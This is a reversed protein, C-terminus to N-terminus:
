RHDDKLSYDDWWKRYEHSIPTTPIEKYQQIQKQLSDIVKYKEELILRLVVLVLILIMYMCFATIHIFVFFNLKRRNYPHSSYKM